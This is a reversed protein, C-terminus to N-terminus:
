RACVVVALLDETPEGRGAAADVLARALKMPTFSPEVLLSRWRAIDRSKLASSAVVLLADNPLKATQQMSGVLSANPDRAGAGLPVVDGAVLFAGPHGACAYDITAREGDIIALFLAVPEGGRLVGESTAGLARVLDGLELKTGGATAAAFAGTVAATALAASVGHAQAETVLLALRREGLEVASWGAGTTRAAARYDAAVSWAGLRADRSASAQLRLADAIEVERATEREHAAARTLAAFAIARAAARASDALLLREEDRLALAYRAEALGVLEERDILPVVLGDGRVIAGSAGPNGTPSLLAELKARIAGVRMTALDITALPGGHRVFWAAVDPELARRAGTSSVYTDGERWWMVELEVGISARWLEVLREAIKPEDGLTAVRAVFQELEREGAVVVPATSALAWAAGTAATWVLAGITVATLSAGLWAIVIAIMVFAIAALALEVALERDYGRPRLLDTRVILYFSISCVVLTPIWAVPYTGWLRYLLLVDLSGFACFVIVGLVLQVARRRDGEPAARRALYLGLIIQVILLSMHPGTLPGPTVYFMGSPLRSVAPITWDTAWCTIVFFVSVAGMIRALWRYRELQGSLGFLVLLLNAGILAVPGHGLRLLRLAVEPDDTMAAAAQCVTWATTTIAAGIVGLRLVRDGRQLAAGLALAVLLATCVLYPMALWSWRLDVV